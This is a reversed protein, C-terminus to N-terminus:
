TLALGEINPLITCFVDLININKSVGHVDKVQSAIRGELAQQKSIIFDVFRISM